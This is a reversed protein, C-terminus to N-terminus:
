ETQVEDGAEASIVERIADRVTPIVLERAKDFMMEHILLMEDPSLDESETRAFSRGAIKERLEEFLGSVGRMQEVFECLFVSGEELDTRRSEDDRPGDWFKLLAAGRLIEKPFATDGDFPGQSFVGVQNGSLYTNRYKQCLRIVSFAELNEFHYDYDVFNTLGGDVPEGSVVDLFLFTLCSCNRIM